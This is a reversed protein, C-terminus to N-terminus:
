VYSWVRFKISQHRWFNCKRFTSSTNVTKALYLSLSALHCYHYLVWRGICSVHSILSWDRPWSSGRSSPMAVWELIKAQLIGHVSSGPLSCDVPDCFFWVPSFHSLMCLHRLIPSKGNLTGIGFAQIELSPRWCLDLNFSRLKKQLLCHTQEGM